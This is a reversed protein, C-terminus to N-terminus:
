LLRLIRASSVAAASGGSSAFAGVVGSITILADFRDWGDSLYPRLGFAAVKMLLEVVFLAIFVFNATQLEATFSANRHELALVISNGIILLAVIGEFLKHTVCRHAWSMFSPRILEFRANSFIRAMNMAREAETSLFVSGDLRRRMEDYASIVAAADKKKKGIKKTM